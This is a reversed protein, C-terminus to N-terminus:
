TAEKAAEPLPSLFVAFTNQMIRENAAPSAVMAFPKVKNVVESLKRGADMRFANKFMVTM